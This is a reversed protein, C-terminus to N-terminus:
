LGPGAELFGDQKKIFFVPSAMPSKSPQIRGSKLNEELFADLESQENPSLPYIKCRHPESGPKLEIAHDWPKRPPLQDFSEKSFIGKFEHYQEPVIEEFTKKGWDQKHSEALKQSVTSGANVEEKPQLFSLFLRDDTELDETDLDSKGEEPMEAEEEVLTPLKGQRMAKKKAKKQKKVDKLNVHCQSPCRTFKM